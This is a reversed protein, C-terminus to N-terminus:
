RIVNAAETRELRRRSSEEKDLGFRVFCVPAGLRARLLAHSGHAQGVVGLAEGAAPM